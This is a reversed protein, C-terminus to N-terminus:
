QPEVGADKLLKTVRTVAGKIDQSYAQPSASVNVYMAKESLMSVVKPDALVKTVETYLRNIIEPPTKAPLALGIRTTFVFEPFGAEATTPVDPMFDLRKSTTVALARLKGEQINALPTQPLDFMVDIRGGVLDILAQSAGKYPVHTMKVATANSFQEGALHLTNGSGASGYNIRGPNAKAYAVFEKLTKPAFGAYVAVVLPSEVMNTIGAFATTPDYPLTKNLAVLSANTLEGLLYITYGDPKSKAVFDGGVLTSAGPKNEVVVNHKMNESLKAAVVRAVFDSSGGATYPVIIKIPNPGDPFSQAQVQAWIGFLCLTMGISKIIKM